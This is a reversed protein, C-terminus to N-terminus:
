GRLSSVIAVCFIVFCWLLYVSKGWFIDKFYLGYEAVINNKLDIKCGVQTEKGFCPVIFFDLLIYTLTYIPCWKMMIVKNEM